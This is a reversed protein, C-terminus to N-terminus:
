ASSPSALELRRLEDPPPLSCPKGGFRFHTLEDGLGLHILHLRVFHRHSLGQRQDPSLRGSWVRLKAAVKDPQAQRDAEHDHLVHWVVVLLKRAVAVIAKNALMRKSLREYEAKWHPHTRAAVWAAEVMAQRLDARGRKSIRGHRHTEGSDHVYTGLGAYGTLNKAHEFRFIDGVAALIVMATIIGIGPLQILFPVQEAWPSVTSLRGLETEVEKVQQNFHDLTALDQRVRLKETFSVPLTEWWARHKAAFPDGAPAAINHRQLMSHLRNTAQTCAGVLRLRHSVIERLERVVLPPVWVEPIMGVALLKALRRVDHKDTKVVAGGILKVHPPHAVVVEGAYRAVQDYITWTNTSAEIVAKDTAKLQARLWAELEGLQIRRPPLVVELEANVGGIVVYYKHADIAVYRLFGKEVSSM